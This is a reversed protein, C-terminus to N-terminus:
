IAALFLAAVLLAIVHAAQDVHAAGGHAAFQRQGTNEMWWRVPWRRDIVSHTVGIWALAVAAPLPQLAVDDLLAAGLVLLVGCILVHTGAHTANAIWGTFTRAAKHKAQHDTQGPYDAALHGVYLLAFLEAFM